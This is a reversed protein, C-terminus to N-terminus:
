WTLLREKILEDIVFQTKDLTAASRDFVVRWGNRRATDLVWNKVERAKRERFLTGDLRYVQRPQRKIEVPNDPRPVKPLPGQVDTLANDTVSLTREIVDGVEQARVASSVDIPTASDVIDMRQRLRRESAVRLENLTTTREFQKGTLLQETGKEIRDAEALLAARVVEANIRANRARKNGPFTVKIKLEGSPLTEVRATVSDYKAREIQAIDVPLAEAAPDSLFAEEVHAALRLLTVSGDSKRITTAVDGNASTLDAEERGLRLQEESTAKVRESQLKKARQEDADKRVRTLGLVGADELISRSTEVRVLNQTVQKDWAAVVQGLQANHLNESTKLAHDANAAYFTSSVGLSGIEAKNGMNIRALVANFDVFVKVDTVQKADM